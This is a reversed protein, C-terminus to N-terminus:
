LDGGRTTNHNHATWTIEVRYHTCDTPECFRFRTAMVDGLTNASNKSCLVSDANKDKEVRGIIMSNNLIVITM